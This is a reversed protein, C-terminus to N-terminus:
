KKACLINLLTLAQYYVSKSIDPVGQQDGELHQQYDARLQPAIFPLDTIKDYGIQRQRQWDQLMNDADAAMTSNGSFGIELAPSPLNLYIDIVAEDPIIDKKYELVLIPNSEIEWTSDKFSQKYIKIWLSQDDDALNYEAAPFSFIKYRRSIDLVLNESAFPIPELFRAKGDRSKKGIYFHQPHIKLIRKFIHGAHNATSIVPNDSQKDTIAMLKIDAPMDKMLSMSLDGDADLLVQNINWAGDLYIGHRSGYNVLEERQFFGHNEPTNIDHAMVLPREAIIENRAPLLTLLQILTYEEKIQLFLIDGALSESPDAQLYASLGAIGPPFSDAGPLPFVTGTTNSKTEHKHM